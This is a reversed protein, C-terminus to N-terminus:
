REVISLWSNMNLVRVKEPTALGQFKNPLKGLLGKAGAGAINDVASLAEWAGAVATVDTDIDVAPSKNRKSGDEPEEEGDENAETPSPSEKDQHTSM